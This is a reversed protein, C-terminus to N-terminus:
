RKKVEKAYGKLILFLVSFAWVCQAFNSLRYDYMRAAFVVLPLTVGALALLATSVGQLLPKWGSKKKVTSFISVAFGATVLLLLGCNGVVMYRKTLLPTQEWMRTLNYGYRSNGAAYIYKVNSLPAFVYGTMEKILRVGIDKANRKVSFTILNRCVAETEEGAQQEIQPLIATYFGLESNEHAKVLEPTVYRNWEENGYEANETLYPVVTRRMLDAEISYSAYAGAVGIARPYLVTVFLVVVVIVPLFVATKWEEKLGKCAKLKRGVAFAGFLVTIILCGYFYHRQFTGTLLLAGAVVYCCDWRFKATDRMIELMKVTLICTAALCMADPLIAFQMQWVSPLTVVYIGALLGYLYGFERRTYTVVISRFSEAFCFVSFLIQFVYMGPIYEAKVFGFFRRIVFLYVSYGPLHWGDTTRQVVSDIYIKTDYFEQVINWNAFAWMVALVLQVAFVGIWISILIHRCWILKKDKM